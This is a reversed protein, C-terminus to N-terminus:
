LLFINQLEQNIFYHIFPNERIKNHELNGDSNSLNNYFRGLRDISLILISLNLDKTSYKIKRKVVM